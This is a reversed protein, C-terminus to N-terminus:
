KHCDTDHPGRFDALRQPMTKQRFAMRYHYAGSIGFFFVEEFPLSGMSGRLDSIELIRRPESLDQDKANGTRRHFFNDPKRPRFIEPALDHDIDRIGDRRACGDIAHKWEHGARVLRQHLPRLAQKGVGPQDLSEIADAATEHIFRFEGGAGRGHEDTAIIFLRSSRHRIDERRKAPFRLVHSLRFRRPGDFRQTLEPAYGAEKAILPRM